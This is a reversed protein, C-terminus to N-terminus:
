RMIREILPIFSFLISLAHRCKLVFVIHLLLLLLAGSSLFYFQMYDPNCFNHLLLLFCQVDLFM